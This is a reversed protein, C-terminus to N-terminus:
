ISLAKNLFNRVSASPDNWNSVGNFREVIKGNRFIITHPIGSFRYKQTAEPYNDTDISFFEVESSKYNPALKALAPELERCPGCWEAGFKVVIIKDGGKKIKGEVTKFSAKSLKAKEEKGAEPKAEINRERVAPIAPISPKQAERQAPKPSNLNQGKQLTAFARISVLQYCHERNYTSQGYVTFHIHGEAECLSKAENECQQYAENQQPNGQSALIAQYLAECARHIGM